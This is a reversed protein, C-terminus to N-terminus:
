FTGGAQLRFNAVPLQGTDSIYDLSKAGFIITIM